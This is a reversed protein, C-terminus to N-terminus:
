KRWIKTNGYTELKYGNVELAEELSKPGNMVKNICNVSFALMVITALAVLTVKVWTRLKRRKM